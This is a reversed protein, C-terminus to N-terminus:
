GEQHSGNAKEAESDLPPPALLQAYKPDNLRGGNEGAGIVTRMRRLKKNEDDTNQWLTM